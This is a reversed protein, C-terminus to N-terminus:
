RLGLHAFIARKKAHLDAVTTGQIHPLGYFALLQNFAAHSCEVLAGKTAPFAPPFNGNGDSLPLIPLADNNASGNYSYRKLDQMDERIAQMDQRIAQMDQRIAQMDQRIPQLLAHM